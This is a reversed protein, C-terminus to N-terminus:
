TVEPMPPPEWTDGDLVWDPPVYEDRTRDYRYGIGAYRKRPGNGNYSTQLWEGSLGIAAIFAQGVAESENGDPGLCENNAIVIVRQVVGSADIEAFHAM